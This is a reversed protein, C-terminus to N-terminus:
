ALEATTSVVDRSLATTIPTDLAAGDPDSSTLADGAPVSFMM